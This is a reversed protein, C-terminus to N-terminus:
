DNIDKFGSSMRTMFVRICYTLRGSGFRSQASVPAAREAAAGIERDQCLNTGRM